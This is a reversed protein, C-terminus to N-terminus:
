REAARDPRLIVSVDHGGYLQRAGRERLLVASTPPLVGLPKESSDLVLLRAGGTARLWDAGIQGRVRRFRRLEAPTMLEFRIDSSVRGALHPYKLLLWDSYRPHTFLKLAPDAAAAAGVTAAAAAPTRSQDREDGRSLGAVAAIMTLGVAVASGAAALRLPPAAPDRRGSRLRTMLPPVLVVAALAFWALNRRATFAAILLLILTLREFTTLDERARALVGVTLGALLFFPLHVAEFEVPMWDSAIASIEPNGLLDHFYSVLSLGYPTALLAVCGTVILGAGHAFPGQPQRRLGGWAAIAGALVTLGTGILVSGHVNAWLVLVPFAWFVRRSPSRSDESLLWLVLVFLPLAFTQTRINGAVLGIPLLALLGVLGVDRTSGGRSRAAALAAAFTGVVVTAHLLGVLVLGGVRWVEFLVLQGFWQQDIWDRGLTWATLTDTSPPGGGAVVRGAALALWTDSMVFVGAGLLM